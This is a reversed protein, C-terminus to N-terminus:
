RRGKEKLYAICAPCTVHEPHDFTYDLGDEGFYIGPGRPTNIKGWAPETWPGCALGIDGQSAYNCYHIQNETPTSM